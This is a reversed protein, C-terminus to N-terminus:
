KLAKLLSMRQASSLFAADAIPIDPIGPHFAAVTM